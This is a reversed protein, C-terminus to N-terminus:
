RCAAAAASGRQGLDGRDRPSTTTFALRGALDRHEDYLSRTPGCRTRSSTGNANINFYHATGKFPCKTTTTSRELRDMRVDGRPFYYRSPHEDEEVKIVDTSDALAEGGITARIRERLHQERVKHEPHERHGPSKSM